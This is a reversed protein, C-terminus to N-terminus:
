VIVPLESGTGERVEFLHLLFQGVAKAIEIEGPFTLPEYVLETERKLPQSTTDNM